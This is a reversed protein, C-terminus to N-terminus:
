EVELRIPRVHRTHRIQSHDFAAVRMFVGSKIAVDYRSGTDLKRVVELAWRGSAWRAACRVDARDGTFAGGLIVGPIVTGVPIRSDAFPSYPASEAETMFWRTQEGDSHDPDLDIPGMAATMAALDKPLRRPIVHKFDDGSRADFNDTYGATGPDPAFGGRYPVKGDMQAQAVEAPGFHDDDMYGASGTSTAKWQWVDAYTNADMTYHLGRGTRTPPADPLPQPSAHFTHDGALTVDLTTLLVSFKDENYKYEDGREYGDHLLTWGDITKKLPLQKLSRTPDEWVFLFYAFAEDHVARIEVRTEGTGDFNGGQNTTVVFPTINRWVPDSTEGDLVPADARDIRYIKLTDVAERDIAVILGTGVIAAALAVVFPNSQVVSGRRAPRPRAARPQAARAVDDEVAHPPLEHPALEASREALMVLLEGADLDPPPAALWTPRVIRLLQAWGGIRYHTLVHCVVFAPVTWTAIWHVRSTGSGAAVGFYLMGGTVILLALAAFFVWYLLINFAGLQVAGRGFLGRVRITDLAIRRKLGSRAVYVAYAISVTVIVVAATMHTTWANEYPLVPDFLNIWRRDPAETAIRLGTLFAIALAVLLVAHLVVTGYDTRSRRM